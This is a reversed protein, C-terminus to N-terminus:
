DKPYNTSGDWALKSFVLRGYSPDSIDHSQQDYPTIAAAVMFGDSAGFLESRPFKNNEDIIRV